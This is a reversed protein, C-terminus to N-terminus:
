MTQVAECNIKNTAIFILNIMFKKFLIFLVSVSLLHTRDLLLLQCFEQYVQLIPPSLVHLCECLTIPKNSFEKLESEFDIKALIKKPKITAEQKRIEMM